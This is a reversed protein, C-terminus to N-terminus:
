RIHLVKSGAKILLKIIKQVSNNFLLKYEVDM